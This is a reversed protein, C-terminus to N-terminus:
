CLAVWLNRSSSKAASIPQPPEALEPPDPPELVGLGSKVRAALGVVIVTAWPPWTATIKETVARFPKEPLTLREEDRGVPNEQTLM